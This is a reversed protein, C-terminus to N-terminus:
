LKDQFGIARVIGSCLSIGSYSLGRFSEDMLGNALTDYVCWHSVFRTKL